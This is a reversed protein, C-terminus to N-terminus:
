RRGPVDFPGRYRFCIDTPGDSRCDSSENTCNGCNAGNLMLNRIRDTMDDLRSNGSYSGYSGSGSYNPDPDPSGFFSIVTYIIGIVFGLFTGALLGVFLHEPVARLGGGYLIGLVIPGGVAGIIAGIVTCVIIM